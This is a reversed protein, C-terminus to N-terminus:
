GPTPPEGEPTQAWDKAPAPPGDLPISLTFVTQGPQSDVSIVGGHLDVAQKTISLGLGTGSIAGVNSARHFPEFMHPLDAAPIGIGEDRVMLVFRTTERRLEVYVPKDVPSYKLANHILNSFVQRMLRQDFSAPITTAEGHYVIRGQYATQSVFEEIIRECLQRADGATPRFEMRGSQIRSLQLVDEIIERMHSVQLQIRELREQIQAENMRDRYYTLSEAAALISALPTRFEHSAMSVFRSKLQGLEQETTLSKQLSEEAQKRQTIDAFTAVVAYIRDEGPLLLPQANILLWTLSSDPKHVGMVVDSQPEGSRLSVMAPHLNGPFPSGDEHISRWRPDLSSRGMMQEATLGLLREAAANCLQIMGDQDMVVIGEHMAAITTRYREESERLADESQKQETIDHILGVIEVPAGTNEDWVITNTSDVWVYRGDKHQVRQRVTFYTAHDSLAGTMAGLMLPRDDPHLLEMSNRGVLEEPAHGTLRPSSATVFTFSGDPGLKVIVDKINEALLRYRLESERLATEAQKRDTIDVYSGLVGIIDGGSGRLPLKSTQIVLRKGDSTLLSEEYENMPKSGVIVSQDDARFAQADATGWPMEGDQKGLIEATDTLGADEAFLRNCGLYISDRDKWFVRVPMTDLVLQLMNQSERLEAESRRLAEEKEKIETIDRTIGVLGIIEGRLNRLPVKNTLMWTEHSNGMNVHEELNLLSEGTEIVRTNDALIKELRSSPMMEQVPKRAAEEPSGFGMLRAHAINDLMMHQQRDDVYIFDPVADIVTRLLNREEAVALEAQKRITIDEITVLVGVIEGNANSLPIRNTLQWLTSGDAAVLQEEIGLEPQGTEAVFRDRAEWGAAQEPLFDRAAKGIIEAPSTCGLSRAQKSNAGRFVSDRDKWFVRLPISEIVNNLMMESERLTQEAKRRETINRMICVISNVADNAHEVPAISMEVDIESGNARRARVEVHQTQRTEAVTRLISEISTATLPYLFKALETGYYSGPALGFMVDFARNAQQLGRDPDVLVIGDASNDFIAELRNKTRELEATREIVRQELLDHAEQLAEKARHHETMDIYTCYLREQGDVVIGVAFGEVARTSGDALRQEYQCSTAEGHVVQAMKALIVDAPAIDIELMTMTRLTELPYGYFEIAAPNADLIRASVPDVILKPLRVREFMQRYRKESAILGQKAKQEDTIDLVFTGILTSGAAHPIPFKIELWHTDGTIEPLTHRFELARNEATVQANEQAILDILPTYQRYESTRKGILEEPSKDTTRAFHENCYLLRDEPDTILVAGPFNHMIEQFRSESLRLSTVDMNHRIAIGAIHAALRILGLETKNPHRVEGYYIAFTGLVTDNDGMIPQSWCARLGHTAALGRFNEWLPSTMVDEVVVLRKEFAATGCSGVGAGIQLGDIAANYLDPLSPAAGHRLQGTSSDLLLIAARIEPEFEEVARILSELIAPLSVSETVKELIESIRRSLTDQRKQETIDRNLTVGGTVVGHRNRVPSVSALIDRKRGEKTWQRVEGRWDGSAGLASQAEEQPIAPWETILLEDIPQGMAEDKTWGYIESAARNWTTVRLENDTSIIADSVQNLLDAQAEVVAQMDKLETIEIGMCQFSEPKGLDDTLCIFEWLTNRIGGDRSPKDLEVKFSTDLQALCKEVTIPIRPHHYELISNLPSGGALGDPEYLWGFEEQYKKNWYTLSGNLDIRIVYNTQSEILSRLQKESAQLSQNAATRETTDRLVTVYQVIEGSANRIPASSWELHMVGGQKRITTLDATFPLGSAVKDVLEQLTSMDAQPDLMLLPNTGIIDEVRYGTIAAFAPNAFVVQPTLDTIMLAETSHEVAAQLLELEDEAEVKDTIDHVSYLTTGRGIAIRKVTVLVHHAHDGKAYVTREINAIEGHQELLEPDFLNDGMLRGVSGMAAIESESYGFLPSVSPSLFTFSGSSDTMFVADSINSLTLRHLEESQRLSAEALKQDTIDRASDNVVAPIGASDYSIWARRHLWRVQGDQRVIRHDLEAYGERLCQQMAANALELDDPHVVERFFDGDKLFRELPYGFVADHAASAFLLKRDPLSLSLIADQTTNLIASLHEREATLEDQMRAVEDRSPITAPAARETSFEEQIITILEHGDQGDVYGKAGLRMLRVADQVSAQDAIVVLPAQPQIHQALRIADATSFESVADPAEDTCLILDWAHSRLATAFEERTTSPLFDFNFTAEKRM